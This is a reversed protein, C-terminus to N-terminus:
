YAVTVCPVQKGVGGREHRMRVPPWGFDHTVVGLVPGEGSWSDISFPPRRPVPLGMPKVLKVGRTLTAVLVLLLPLKLLKKQFFAYVLCYNFINM